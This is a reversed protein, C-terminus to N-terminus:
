RLTLQLRYAFQGAAGTQSFTSARVMLYYTKTTTTANRAALDQPTAGTGDIMSCYGRGDDDDDVLQLGAEDLLTLRSDIGNSECTESGGEIIEARIRAGAPVTISYVDADTNVMHDGLAFVENDSLLQPTATMYTENPETESGNDDQYEVDLYYAAVTANNGREEVQVFYTGAAPLYVVLAGCSAIGGGLTDVFLQTSAMDFVRVDLTAATSCQGYTGTFTEFRVVMPAAVTVQFRDLDGVTAIAGALVVDGTVQVTSATAEPSTNNPEVESTSEIVCVASCGDGGATNGDDCDEGPGVANDGCVVPTYTVDFAYSAIAANDDAEVVHAFVTQGPALAFTLGPCYDTTTNRDDNFALSTGTANRIHLGPDISTGCSTGIGFTPALNWIDFRVNAYAASTNTFAFVDEDGIPDLKAVLRVSATFAGNATANASAFDNGAFGTVGPSPSGDENPEVETTAGELQCAASCGDNPATNGDDCQETPQLVSDGCIPEIQCAADCGDGATTNMDDCTEGFEIAGDGCVVPKYKVVLAYSPIVATDGYRIVHAFRTQGPTLAVTLTSCRDSGGNRDDNSALSNGAADRLHMGTDIAAGCPTGIGFNTAINWIDLKVTVNATGANTLAFVDEDGNPMISALITTNGSILGNALANTSGFDNGNIGSGGTSPTGDENPETETMAGEISCTASCGDGASTNTDDCQEGPGVDGDGCVVPVYVIDLAYSPVVSNDLYDVVHVYVSEGPFLPHVLGACYDSGPRDNNSALVVGAANRVNIGTDISATGCSVGIGFGTALNWTDLKLRVAVTGTNSVKFVDEDGMPTLAAIITTKGTVAPNVDAATISFDNGNIGSGGTAITGDDNPEIELVEIACTASCGDATTTNGDDCQETGGKIGNGCGTMSCNSDCGDGDVANGDDCTEGFTAVGNGCGTIKCNVDCGDGSTTNSDDCTEDGAKIGNGCFSQSCNADCGDGSELNGDDCSEDFGLIGNGCGPLTCNSDCGDGDVLNADDCAEAKEDVFGDGCVM